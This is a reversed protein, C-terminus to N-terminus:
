FPNRVDADSGSRTRQRPYTDLITLQNAPYPVPGISRKILTACPISPIKPQEAMLRHDGNVSVPEQDFRPRQSNRNSLSFVRIEKRCEISGLVIENRAEIRGKERERKRIFMTVYDKNTKTPTRNVFYYLCWHYYTEVNNEIGEEQLSGSAGIRRRPM